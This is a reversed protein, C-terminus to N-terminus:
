VSHDGYICTEVLDYVIWCCDGKRQELFIRYYSIKRVLYEIQSSAFIDLLRQLAKREFLDCYIRNPLFSTIRMM